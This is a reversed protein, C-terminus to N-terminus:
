LDRRGTGDSKVPDPMHAPIRDYVHPLRMYEGYQRKLCADADDPVIFTEGEFPRGSGSGFWKKEFRWPICMVYGNSQFWSRGNGRRFWGAVHRQWRLLFSLPISRGVARLIRAAARDAFPKGETKLGHETRHGLCLGYIGRLLTTQLFHLLASDSAEELVFLDLATCGHLASGEPAAQDLLTNGTPEATYVVRTMFDLFVDADPYEPGALVFGNGSEWEKKAAELFRELDPRPLAIDADDDWPVFGGHRVAGLLTGCFLYYRIGYKRCIRDVEALLRRSTRHSAALYELEPRLAGSLDFTRDFVGAKRFTERFLLQREAFIRVTMRDKATEEPVGLVIRLGNRGIMPDRLQVRNWYGGWLNGGSDKRFGYFAESSVDGDWPSMVCRVSYPDAAGYDEQGAATNESVGRTGTEPGEGSNRAGDGDGAAGAYLLRFSVPVAPGGNGADATIKERDTLILIEYGRIDFPNETM